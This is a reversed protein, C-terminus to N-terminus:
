KREVESIERSRRLMPFEDVLKQWDREVTERAENSTANQRRVTIQENRLWWRQITGIQWHENVKSLLLGITDNPRHALVWVQNTCKAGDECPCGTVVGGITVLVNGVVESAAEQIERVENDSVNLYRLPSDRRQPRVEKARDLIAWVREMEAGRVDLYARRACEEATLARQALVNGPAVIAMGVILILSPGKM